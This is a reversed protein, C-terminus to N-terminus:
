NTDKKLINEPTGRPICVVQFSKSELYSAIHDIANQIQVQDGCYFLDVAAYGYEDWGHYTFHSESIVVVGSVGHPEFAHFCDTVITCQALAAAKRFVDRIEDICSMKDPNCENYEIIVHMGLAGTQSLTPIEGVWVSHSFTPLEIQTSFAQKKM